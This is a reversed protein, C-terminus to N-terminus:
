ITSVGRKLVVESAFNNAEIIAEKITLGYTLSVALAALFTDGAGSVDRATHSKGIYDVNNHTAGREGKTIIIKELYRDMVEKGLNNLNAEFESENMKFYDVIDLMKQTVLRKTDMILLSTPNRTNNIIVIDTESIFGKNYDSIVITNATRISQLNNESLHLQNHTGDGEDVRLFYHNSKEDVYRTKINENISFQANITFDVKTKLYMLHGIQSINNFVNSAMGQSKVTNTPLFVPVPAEPSLRKVKGYVFVDECQEGFVIFQKM